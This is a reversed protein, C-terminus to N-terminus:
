VQSHKLAQLANQGREDLHVGRGLLGQIRNTGIGQARLDVREGGPARRCRSVQAWVVPAQQELFQAGRAVQLHAPM